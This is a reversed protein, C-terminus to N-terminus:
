TGISGGNYQRFLAGTMQPDAYQNETRVGTFEPPLQTFMTKGRPGSNPNLKEGVLAAPEAAAQLAVAGFVFLGPAILKFRRSWWCSRRSTNQSRGPLQM